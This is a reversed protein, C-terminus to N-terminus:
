SIKYAGGDVVLAQGTIFAADESALFAVPGAIDQPQSMRKISQNAYIMPDFTTTDGMTGPTATPAPLIANVTIGDAGLDNALGRVFGIAAMKSAMYHSYGVIPYGISNSSISIFRGWKNRRMLPVIHKASYFHADVNVAFTKRWVEADLEDITRLPFIGANNVLIDARGYVEDVEAAMRRWEEEQSVDAVLTRAKSGILAATEAAERLDVLVVEAGRQALLVAIARGIGQAAGTVVAVRGESSSNQM